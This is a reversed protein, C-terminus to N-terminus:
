QIPVLVVALLRKILGLQQAVWNFLELNPQPFGLLLLDVLWIGEHKARDITFIM